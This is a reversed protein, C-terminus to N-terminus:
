RQVGKQGGSPTGVGMKKQMQQFRKGLSRDQRLAQAIKNFRKWSIKDNAEVKKRIKTRMKKAQEQREKKLREFEAKEEESMDVNKQSRPSMAAAIQSYREQSLSSGEVSKKMDEKMQKQIPIVEKTLKVFSKLESDSVDVDVTQGRGGPAQQGGQGGRGGGQARERSSRRGQEGGESAPAMTEQQGDNANEQNEGGCAVLLLSLLAPAIKKM